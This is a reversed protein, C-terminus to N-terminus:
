RLFMWFTKLTTFNHLQSTKRLLCTNKPTFTVLHDLTFGGHILVDALLFTDSLKFVFGAALWFVPNVCIKTYFPHSCCWMFCYDSLDWGPWRWVDSGASRLTEMLSWILRLTPESPFRRDLTMLGGFKQADFPFFSRESLKRWFVLSMKDFCTVWPEWVFLDDGRGDSWRRWGWRSWLDANGGPESWTVSKWCVLGRGRRWWM